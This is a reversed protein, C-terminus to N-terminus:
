ERKYPSLTSNGLANTRRKWEYERPRLWLWVHTPQMTEQVVQLLQENLQELDVEQRLTTTFAALTRAADYKRRYFRHDISRQIGRRLPQFLAAVVLTSGVIVLPSQNILPSQAVRSALEDLLFRAHCTSPVSDLVGTGLDEPAFRSRCRAVQKCALVCM